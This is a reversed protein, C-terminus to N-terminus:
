PKIKKSFHKLTWSYNLLILLSFELFSYKQVRSICHFIKLFLTLHFMVYGIALVQPDQFGAQSCSWQLAVNSVTSIKEKAFIKFIKEGFGRRVILTKQPTHNGFTRNQVLNPRFIQRVFSQMLDWLMAFTSFFFLRWSVYWTSHM